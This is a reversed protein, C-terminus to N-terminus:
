CKEKSVRGKMEGREGKVVGKEIRVGQGREGGIGLGYGM